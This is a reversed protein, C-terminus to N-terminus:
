QTTQSVDGYHIESGRYVYIRNRIQELRRMVLDETVTFTESLIYVIDPDTLDYHELMFYPLSAYMTFINAQNEQLELFAKPMMYQRGSHRLLHCLEHFFKERQQEQSLQSDLVICRFRGFESSHSNIEKYKLFIDFTRCIRQFTLDEPSFINLRHYLKTIWDELHTTKYM